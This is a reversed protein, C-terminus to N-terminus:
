KVYKLAEEAANISAKVSIGDGVAGKMWIEPIMKGQTLMRVMEDALNKGDLKQEIQYEILHGLPYASLYLPNEIMHSYIALISQDKVGFVPAYYKNWVEKAMRIVQKKLQDDTANKHEYLWKWVSQDLLAVGMIEYASWFNDLAKMYKVNEDNNKHGLLMLDRSQFIFAWTETFATNPVGRMFWNDMYQLTITQEVNHGMEHVAINYGKYNMGAKGIRTRLHANESKMDAGWAHGSGRAPDVDIKSAIFNSKENDFGVNKLMTSIDSQFAAPNPFKKQTQETLLDQNMSSRAKFGDYWIDWPQLDRGLRSKILDGVKKATGSSVLETFLAEIKDIPIEFEEEFKRDIYTPYIPSYSDAQRQANFCSLLTKYRNNPEASARVEKGNDFVKNAFPDWQFKDSNIVVSPITQDIIRNMVQYIMKQRVLGDANAYQSKIEDRLNWHTLLKMDKPFYTANKEDVLNGAFINYEAIYTGAKTLADSINQSIEAPVRSTFIDGVRAFAWEKRSWKEGLETKEKLSYHPFNLLVNFAIKNNFFDEVLHAFPSYAGFQEDIAIIPDGDLHLARNLDLTIKNYHGYLVEFNSQLKKFLLDLDENKAVFNDECYKEFDSSSGDKETWFMAVQSVGKEIRVKSQDGYKKILKATVKEVSSKSISSMEKAEDKSSCSNFLLALAIVPLLILYKMFTEM